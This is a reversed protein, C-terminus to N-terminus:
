GGIRGTISRADLGILRARFHRRGCVRVGDVEVVIEGDASRLMGDGYWFVSDTPPATSPDIAYVGAAREFLRELAASPTDAGSSPPRSTPTTPDESIESSHVWPGFLGVPPGAPAIPGGAADVLVAFEEFRISGDLVLATTIQEVSYGADFIMLLVLLPSGYSRSRQEFQDIVDSVPLAQQPRAFGQGAELATDDILVNVPPGDPEVAEGSSALISGSQEVTGVLAADVIQELSYGKDAVLLVAAVASREDGLSAVLADAVSVM